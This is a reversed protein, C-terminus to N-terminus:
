KKKRREKRKLFVHHVVLLVVAEEDPEVVLLAVRESFLAGTSQQSRAVLILKGLGRKDKRKKERLDFALALVFVAQKGKM